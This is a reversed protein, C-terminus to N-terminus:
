RYRAKAVVVVLGSTLHVIDLPCIGANGNGLAFFVVVLRSPLHSTDLMVRSTPAVITLSLWRNTKRKAHDTSNLLRADKEPLGLYNRLSMKM